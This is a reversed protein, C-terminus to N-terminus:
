RLDLHVPVTGVVKLITFTFRADDGLGDGNPSFVKPEVTIGGLVGEELSTRVTLTNGPVRAKVDGPYVPQSLEGSSSDSVWGKFTTGYRFVRCLFVVEVLTRDRTVKPFRIILRDDTLDVSFDVEKGDIRVEQVRDARGPLQLELTDFGLQGPRIRPRVLYTFTVPEGLPVISDLRAGDSATPFFDVKVQLYRRPGPSALPAKEEDFPYASSWTSWNETDETIKGRQDRPLSYYAERTLPRGSPDEAVEETGM